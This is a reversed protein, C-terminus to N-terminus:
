MPVHEKMNAKIYEDNPLLVCVCLCVCLEVCICVHLSACVCVGCVYVYMRVCM